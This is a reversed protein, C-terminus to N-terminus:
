FAIDNKKVWNDLANKEVKSVQIGIPTVGEQNLEKAQKALRTICNRSPRQNMDWLCVLIRRDKLDNKLLNIGLQRLTPLPKGMLSPSQKSVRRGHENLEAVIIKIDTDM